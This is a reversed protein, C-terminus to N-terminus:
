DVDRLRLETSSIDHRFEVAPVEDCLKRLSEPLPLDACSQFEQEVLRGFVLFRCGRQAIQAIAEEAAAPNNGYYRPQGIRHITDAGVIFVAGPFLASKQVFTPARTLWLAPPKDNFQAVRQAIESYDLPPKDVNEISLEFEVPVGLRTASFEAMKLHGAHLPNFAGPFIARTNGHKAGPSEGPALKRDMACLIAINGILLDRWETPAITCTSKVAENELLPLPLRDAIGFAEAVANLVMYAAIVEEEIRSRRGKILKLSHTSTAEITQLAVHIRHEGRKPRNSALSATCGIGIVPAAHEVSDAAQLHRARQFAVMAMMRATAASCFNEPRANLFKELSAASYPVIAELVTRSGGPVTLLDSIARSGGGTIVLVMQGPAAHIRRVLEPAPLLDSMCVEASITVYAAALLQIERNCYKQPNAPVCKAFTVDNELIKGFEAFL